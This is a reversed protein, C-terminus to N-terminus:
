KLYQPTRNLIPVSCELASDLEALDEESIGNDKLVISLSEFDRPHINVETLKNTGVVSVSGGYVITHFIQTVSSPELKSTVEVGIEGADPAKKGLELTFDLVKNRVSNIIEVLNGVGFWAWAKYCHQNQYVKSGLFM